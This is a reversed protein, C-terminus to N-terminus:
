EEDQPFIWFYQEVRYIKHLELPRLVPDNTVGKPPHLIHPTGPRDLRIHYTKGNITVGNALAAQAITLAEGDIYYSDVSAGRLNRILANTNPLTALTTVSLGAANFTIAHRQAALSALSALGGGLSHGTFTLNTYTRAMYVSLDITQTYMKSIFITQSFDAALSEITFTTGKFALVYQGTTSKLFLTANISDTPINAPVTYPVASWGPPLTVNGGYAADSLVACEEEFTWFRHVNITMKKRPDVWVQITYDGARLELNTISSKGDSGAPLEGSSISWCIQKAANPGSVGASLDIHMYGDSHNVKIDIDQTPGTSTITTGGIRDTAKLSLIDIVGLKASSTNSKGGAWVTWNLQSEGPALGKVYVNIPCQAYLDISGSPFPTIMEPDLWLSVDGSAELTGFVQGPATPTIGYLSLTAVAVDNVSIVNPTLDIRGGIVALGLSQSGGIGFQHASSATPDSWVDWSASIGSEGGSVGKITLTIIQSSTMGRILHTQNPLSEDGGCSVSIITPDFSVSWHGMVPVGDGRPNQITLTLTATKGAGLVYTGDVQTM